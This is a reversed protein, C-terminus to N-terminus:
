VSALVVASTCIVTPQQSIVHVEFDAHVWRQMLALMFVTAQQSWVVYFYEFVRLLLIKGFQCLQGYM